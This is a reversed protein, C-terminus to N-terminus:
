PTADKMSLPSMKRINRARKVSPTPTANRSLTPTANKTSSLSSMKEENAHAYREKISHAHRKRHISSMMKASPDLPSMKPLNTNTKHTMLPLPYKTSCACRRPPFRPSRTIDMHARDLVHIKPLMCTKHLVHTKLLLCTKSFMHFKKFPRMNTK